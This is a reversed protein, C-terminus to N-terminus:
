ESPYPRPFTNPEDPPPLPANRKGCGGLALSLVLAWLIVAGFGRERRVGLKGSVRIM